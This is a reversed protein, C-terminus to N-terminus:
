DRIDRPTAKHLRTSTNTTNSTTTVLLITALKEVNLDLEDGWKMFSSVRSDHDSLHCFRELLEQDKNRDDDCMLLEDCISLREERSDQGWM